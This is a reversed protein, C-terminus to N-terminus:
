SKGLWLIGKTLADKLRQVLLAKAGSITYKRKKLEEKLQKITMSDVDLQVAKSQSPDTTTPSPDSTAIAADPIDSPAKPVDPVDSPAKAVEEEEEPLLTEEFEQEGEEEMADYFPAIEGDSDYGDNFKSELLRFAQALDRAQPSPTTSTAPPQRKPTKDTNNVPPASGLAEVGKPCSTGAVENCNSVETPHSDQNSAAAPKSAAANTTPAQPALKEAM